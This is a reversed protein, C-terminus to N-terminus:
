GGDRTSGADGTRRRRHGGFLTRRLRPLFGSAGESALLSRPVVKDGHTIQVPMPSDLNRVFLQAVNKVVATYLVSKGDPSWRPSVEDTDETAIPTFRHHSIDTADPITVRSFTYGAALAAVAVASVLVWTPIGGKKAAAPSALAAVGSMESAHDRLNKLDHYLDVTAGYRQSPEKAM